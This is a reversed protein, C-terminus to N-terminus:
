VSKRLDDLWRSALRALRLQRERREGTRNSKTQGGYDAVHPLTQIWAEMDASPKFWEGRHHCAAWQGHMTVETEDPADPVWARVIIPVPSGIQLNTLRATLSKAKGIKVYPLGDLQIIYIGM